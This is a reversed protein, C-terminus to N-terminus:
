TCGVKIDSQIVVCVEVWGEAIGYELKVEVVQLEEVM